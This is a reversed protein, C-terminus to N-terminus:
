LPTLVVKQIDMVAKGKKDLPQVVLRQLGSQKIELTGADVEKWDQFGPTELVTFGSKEGNLRVEVQSGGNGPGCGQTITVKYRGPKTVVFEWEAFDAPDTWFGLCNKEPKPEYRMVESWTIASNAHLTLTGDPSATIEEDSERTPILAVERIDLAPGAGTTPAFMAFPVLDAKEIYVAGLYAHRAEKSGPLNKKLRTEGLRFQVALTPRSLTYTLRVNYRGWRGPKFTTWDYQEWHEMTTHIFDKPTFRIVGRDPLDPREVPEDSGFGNLDVPPPAAFLADASGPAHAPESATKSTEAQANAPKATGQASAPEAPAPATKSPAQKEAPATPTAPSPSPKEGCAILALPLSLIALRSLSLCPFSFCKM